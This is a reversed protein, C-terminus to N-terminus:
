SLTTPKDKAKQISGGIEVNRGDEFKIVIRNSISRAENCVIDLESKSMNSIDSQNIRNKLENGHYNLITVESIDSVSVIEGSLQSKEGNNYEVDILNDASQNVVYLNNERNIGNMNQYMLNM